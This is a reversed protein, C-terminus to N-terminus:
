EDELKRGFRQLARAVMAADSADQFGFKDPPEGFHLKALARGVAKEIVGAEEELEASREGSLRSSAAIRGLTRPSPPCHDASRDASAISRLVPERWLLRSRRM